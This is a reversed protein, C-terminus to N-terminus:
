ATREDLELTLGLVTAVANLQSVPVDEGEEIGRVVTSPANAIQPLRYRTLAHRKRAEHIRRPIGRPVLRPATVQLTQSSAEQVMKHAAPKRLEDYVLPIFQEAASPDGQEIANLIKTVDTMPTAKPWRIGKGM